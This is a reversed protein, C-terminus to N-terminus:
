KFEGSEKTQAIYLTKGGFEEMVEESHTSFVVPLGQELILRTLKKALPLDVGSFPEDLLLVDGRYALARALSVRRRMGGSMDSPMLHLDDGLGVASLWSEAEGENKSPLGAEVNSCADLWPFLRDEHFMVAPKEYLGEVVGSSPRILGALIKILTTKGSGSPGSICTVGGDIEASFDNFIVKDGFSLSVNKLTIM